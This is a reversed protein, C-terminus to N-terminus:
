LFQLLLVLFEVIKLLDFYPKQKITIKAAKDPIINLLLLAKHGLYLDGSASQEFPFVYKTPKGNVSVGLLITKPQQAAYVQLVLMLLCFLFSLKQLKSMHILLKSLRGVM